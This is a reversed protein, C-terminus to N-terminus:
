REYDTEGRDRNFGPAHARGFRFPRRSAPKREEGAIGSEAERQPGRFGALIEKLAKRDRRTAPTQDWGRDYNMVERDARWVVLKSIPGHEMGFVSGVHYIQALFTYDPYRNVRGRLWSQPAPDGELITVKDENLKDSM